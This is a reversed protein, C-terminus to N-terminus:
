RRNGLSQNSVPGGSFLGGAVSAATGGWGSKDRAEDMFDQYGGTGTKWGESFSQPQNEPDIGLAHNIVGGIGAALGATPKQLGLTFADGFVDSAGPSGLSAKVIARLRASRQEEPTPAPPSVPVLDDFAGGGTKAVSGPILDDFAGAM